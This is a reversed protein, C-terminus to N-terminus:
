NKAKKKYIREENSIHLKIILLLFLNNILHIYNILVYGFIVVVNQQKKKFHIM